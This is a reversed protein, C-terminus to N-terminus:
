TGPPKSTSTERSNSVNRTYGNTNNVNRSNREFMSNSTTRSYSEQQEPTRATALTGASGPTGIKATPKVYQITSHSM